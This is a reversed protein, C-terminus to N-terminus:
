NNCESHIYTRCQKDPRPKPLAATPDWMRPATPRYNDTAELQTNVAFNWFINEQPPKPLDYFRNISMGRYNQSPDTLHTATPDLFENCIRPHKLPFKTLNIKNVKGDKCRSQLVNRNSLITEVDVLEQSPATVHGVFNSVGFSNAGGSSRPGFVSLCADCNNVRNTNMRYLFPGVSETIQDKIFCADANLRSSYGINVGQSRYNFEPSGVSRSQNM